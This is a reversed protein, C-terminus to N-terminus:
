KGKNTQPQSNKGQEKMQYMNRKDERNPTKNRCAAPNYNKRSTHRGAMPTSTGNGETSKRTAPVTGATTPPASDKDRQHDTSCGTTHKKATQSGLIAKPLKDALPHPQTVTKSTTQCSNDVPAKSALKTSGPRLTTISAEPLASVFIGLPRSNEPPEFGSSLDGM